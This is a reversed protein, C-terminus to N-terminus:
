CLISLQNCYTYIYICKSQTHKFREDFEFWKTKSIFWAIGSYKVMKVVCYMYCFRYLTFMEYDLDM